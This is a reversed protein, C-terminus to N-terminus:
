VGISAGRSTVERTSDEMHSDEIDEWEDTDSVEPYPSRRSLEMTRPRSETHRFSAARSPQTMLILQRPIIKEFVPRMLLCCAVIIAVSAEAIMWLEGAVVTFTFDTDYNIRLVTVM